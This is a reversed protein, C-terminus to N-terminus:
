IGDYNSSFYLFYEDNEPVEFILKGETVSMIYLPINKKNYPLWGEIPMLMIGYKTEDEECTGDIHLNYNIPGNYVRYGDESPIYKFDTLYIDWKDSDSPNARLTYFIILCGKEEENKINVFEISFSLEKNKLKKLSKPFGGLVEFKTLDLDPKIRNGLNKKFDIEDFSKFFNDIIEEESLEKYANKTKQTKDKFNKDCSIFTFLLFVCIFIIFFYNNRFKTLNSMYMQM